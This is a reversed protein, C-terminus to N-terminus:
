KKLAAVLGVKDLGTSFVHFKKSGFKSHNELAWIRATQTNQMSWQATIVLCSFFPIGTKKCTLCATSLPRMYPAPLMLKARFICICQFLLADSVSLKRQSSAMVLCKWGDNYSWPMNTYYILPTNLNAFMPSRKCVNALLKRKTMLKGNILVSLYMKFLYNEAHLM